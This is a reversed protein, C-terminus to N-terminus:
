LNYDRYVGLAPCLSEPQILHMGSKSVSSSVLYWLLAVFSFKKRWIQEVEQGFTIAIDYFLM